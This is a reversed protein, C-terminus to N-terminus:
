DASRLLNAFLGEPAPRGTWAAFQREAQLIFMPAGTAVRAGRTAAERVLPTPEDAYITDFVTVSDDLPVDGPLPSHESRM